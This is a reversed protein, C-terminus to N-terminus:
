KTPGAHDSDGPRSSAKGKLLMLLVYVCYQFKGERGLTPRVSATFVWNDLSYMPKCPIEDTRAKAAVDLVATNSSRESQLGYVTFRLGYVTFRLGYVRLSRESQLGRSEAGPDLGKDSDDNNSDNNNSDNNNDNNNNHTLFTM